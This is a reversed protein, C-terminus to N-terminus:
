RIVSYKRYCYMGFGWWDTKWTITIVMLCFTLYPDRAFAMDNSCLFLVVVFARMKRFKIVVCINLTMNLTM